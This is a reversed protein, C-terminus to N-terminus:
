LHHRSRDAHQERELEEVRKLLQVVYELLLNDRTYAANTPSGNSLDSVQRHFEAKFKEANFTM